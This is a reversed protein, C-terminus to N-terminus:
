VKKRFRRRYDRVLGVISSLLTVVLLSLTVPVLKVGWPTYNFIFAIALVLSVSMVISLSTKEISDLETKTFLARTMSYGPVYLVLVSSLLPRMYYISSSQETVDLLVATTVVALITIVWFWVTETSFLWRKSSLPSSSSSVFRLKGQKQLLMICEMIEKKDVILYKQSVLRLLQEVSEPQKSNVIDLINEIISYQKRRKIVVSKANNSQNKTIMKQTKMLTPQITETAQIRNRLFLVLGAAILLVGILFYHIVTMGIGLSIAEATRSGFFITGIDKNWFTIDNWVIWGVSALIFVGFTFLAIMIKQSISRLDFKSLISKTQM